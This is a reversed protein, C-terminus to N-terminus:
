ARQDLFSKKDRQPWEGDQGYAVPAAGSGLLEMVFSVYTMSQRILEENQRNIDRLREMQGLFRRQLSLLQRGEREPLQEAWWVITHEGVAEAPSEGHEQRLSEESRGRERELEGIRTFLLQEGRLIDEMEQIKGGLLAGQLKGALDTLATYAELEQTLIAKLERM